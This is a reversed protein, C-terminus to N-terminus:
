EIVCGKTEKGQEAVLTVKKYLSNPDEWKCFFQEGLIPNYPKKEIRGETSRYAYSGYLTSIFWRVVELM